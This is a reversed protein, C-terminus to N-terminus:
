EYIDGSGMRRQWKGSLWVVEGSSLSKKVDIIRQNSSGRFILDPSKLEEVFRGDVLVDIRKLIEKVTESNGVKGELLQTDYLFGTYCWVTKEPMKEKIAKLIELVGEQNEPEFPEGGLLSFGEIHNPSLATLIEDLTDNTFPKGYSFDWAESNFCNKCKHRCGSVFLSVRVGPGNAIDFKKIVAYNM